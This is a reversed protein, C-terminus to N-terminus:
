ALFITIVWYNGDITSVLLNENAYFFESMPRIARGFVVMGADEKAM